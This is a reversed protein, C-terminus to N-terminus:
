QRSVGAQQIVLVRDVRRVIFVDRHRLNRATQRQDNGAVRGKTDTSSNSSVKRRAEQSRRAPVSHQWGSSYQRTAVLRMAGKVTGRRGNGKAQARRNSRPCATRKAHATPNGLNDINAM